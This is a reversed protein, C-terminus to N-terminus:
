VQQELLLEDLADSHCAAFLVIKVQHGKQVGYGLAAIAAIRYRIKPLHARIQAGLYSGHLM